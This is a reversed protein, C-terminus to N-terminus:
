RSRYEDHFQITLAALFGPIEKKEKVWFDVQEKIERSFAGDAGGSIKM